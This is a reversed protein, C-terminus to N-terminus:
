RANSELFRPLNDESVIVIIYNVNGEDAAAYNAAATATFNLKGASEFLSNNFREALMDVMPISYDDRYILATPLNARDTFFGFSEDGRAASTDPIESKGVFYENAFRYDNEAMYQRVANILIPNTLEEALEEPIKDGMATDFKPVFDYVTETFTEVDLGYHYALDGGIANKVEKIDFEDMAKPAADPYKEAVFNMIAAYTLYAAYESMTSHTNYYLPYKSTDAEAFIDRMDILNADTGELANKVQSYLTVNDSVDTGAPLSEKDYSGKSPVMVYLLETGTKDLNTVYKTNINSVLKKIITNPVVASESLNAISADLFLNIGNGLVTPYDVSDAATAEYGCEIVKPESETKDPATATVQLSVLAKDGVNVELAFYTGRATVESVEGGVYAAKVTAGEECTGALVVVNQTKNYMQLVVPMRTQGEAPEPDPKSSEVVVDKSVELDPVSELIDLANSGGGCAVFSFLTVLALLIVLVKKTNFM